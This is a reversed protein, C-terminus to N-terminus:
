LGVCRREAVCRNACGQSLEMCRLQQLDDRVLQLLQLVQFVRLLLLELVQKLQDRRLQPLQLLQDLEDRLVHLLQLLGRLKLLWETLASRVRSIPHRCWPADRRLDARLRTMHHLRIMMLMGLSVTM